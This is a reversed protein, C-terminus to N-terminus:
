ADWEDDRAEYDGSIANEENFIDAEDLDSLRIETKLSDIPLDEPVYDEEEEESPQIDVEEAIKNYDELEEKVQNVTDSILKILVDRGENSTLDLDELSETVYWAAGTDDEIALRM